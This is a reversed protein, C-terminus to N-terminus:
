PPGVHNKIASFVLGLGDASRAVTVRDVMTTLLFFGRGREDELDPPGSPHILEELKDPDGGGQDSVALRWGGNELELELLMRVPETLDQEEIASGGGGHDVANALLESAVLVLTELEDGDIGSSEAFKRLVTRAMRVASHAAPLEM